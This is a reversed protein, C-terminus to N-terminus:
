DNLLWRKKTHLTCEWPISIWRKKVCCYFETEAKLIDEETKILKWNLVSEREWNRLIVRLMVWLDTEWSFAKLPWLQMCKAMSWTTNNGQILVESDKVRFTNGILTFYNNSCIRKYFFYFIFIIFRRTNARKQFCKRSFSIM